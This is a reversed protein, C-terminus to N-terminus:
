RQIQIYPAGKIKVTNRGDCNFLTWQVWYTGSPLGNGARSDTVTRKWFWRGITRTTTKNAVGDWFIYVNPDPNARIAADSPSLFPCCTSHQVKKEYVVAGYRNFVKLEYGNANYPCNPDGNSGDKLYYYDNANDGNPSIFRNGSNWAVDLTFGDFPECCNDSSGNGGTGIPEGTKEINLEIESCTYIECVNCNADKWSIKSCIKVKTACCPIESAPPLLYSVKFTDGSKLMAGNPNDWIIERQNIGNDTLNALAPLNWSPNQTLANPLTGITNDM